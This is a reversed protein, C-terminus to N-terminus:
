RGNEQQAQQRLFRVRELVRRTRLTAVHLRERLAANEAALEGPDAAPAIPPLDDAGAVDDPDGAGVRVDDRAGRQPRAAAGGRAGAAGGQADLVQELERVRAEAQLARRRFGGLEDGLSRVLRELEQFTTASVFSSM